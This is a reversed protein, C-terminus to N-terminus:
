DFSLIELLPEKLDGVVGIFQQVFDVAQFPGLAHLCHLAVPNAATFSGLEREADFPLGTHRQADKRGTGVGAETHGVGYDSGLM